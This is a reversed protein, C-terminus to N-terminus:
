TNIIEEIWHLFESVRTYVGPENPAGCVGGWSAIGALLFRKDRRQIVMPGGSDGQCADRGGNSLGACIFINPISQDYGSSKYMMECIKNDMVPLSVEQLTTALPGGAESLAGWGTVFATWGIFTENSDPLCIPSVNPQFVVPASFRLLALDYELTLRDFNPHTIVTEVLRRPGRRSTIDLEGMRLQFEFKPIEHVCHAATIAWNENLLSAGCHHTYASNDKRRHISIQWPWRGFTANSGGVIRHFPVLQRGCVQKYPRPPNGHITTSNTPFATSSDHINGEDEDSTEYSPEVM